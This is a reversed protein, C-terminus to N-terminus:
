NSAKSMGLLSLRKAVMEQAGKLRAKAVAFSHSNRPGYKAISDYFRKCEFLEARDWALLEEQRQREEQTM